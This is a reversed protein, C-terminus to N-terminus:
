PLTQRRNVHIINAGHHYLFQSVDAVIGKHDPSFILLVANNDM